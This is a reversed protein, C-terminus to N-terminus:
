SCTSRFHLWAITGSASQGFIHPIGICTPFTGATGRQWIEFSTLIRYNLLAAVARFDPAARVGKNTGHICEACFHAIIILARHHASASFVSFTFSFHPM